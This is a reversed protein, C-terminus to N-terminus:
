SDVPRPSMILRTKAPPTRTADYRGCVRRRVLRRSTLAATVAVASVAVAAFCYLESTDLSTLHLHSVTDLPPLCPLPNGGLSPMRDNIVSLDGQNARPLLDPDRHVLQMFGPLVVTSHDIQAGHLQAIHILIISTDGLIPHTGLQATNPVM